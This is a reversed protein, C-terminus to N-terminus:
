LTGGLRYRRYVEPENIREDIRAWERESFDDDPIVVTEGEEDETTVGIVRVVPFEEPNTRTAPYYKGYCEFEVTAEVDAGAFRGRSPYVTLSKTHISM